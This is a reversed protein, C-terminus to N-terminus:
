TRQKKLELEKKLYHRVTFNYLTYDMYKAKDVVGTRVYQDMKTPDELLEKRLEENATIYEVANKYLFEALESDNISMKNKLIEKKFVEKKEQIYEAGKPLNAFTEALEKEKDEKAKQEEIKTMSKENGFGFFEGPISDYAYPTIGWPNFYATVVRKGATKAMGIENQTTGMVNTRIIEKDECLIEKTVSIGDCYSKSIKEINVKKEEEDSIKKIKNDGDSCFNTSILHGYKFSPSLYTVFNQASSRYMDTNLLSTVNGIVEYVAASVCDVKITSGHVIKKTADPVGVIVPINFNKGFKVAYSNSGGQETIIGAVGKKLANAWSKNINSTVVIAGESIIEDLKDRGPRVVCATGIGKNGFGESGTAIMKTNDMAMLFSMFLNTLLLASAIYKISLREKIFM